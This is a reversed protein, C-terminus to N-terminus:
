DLMSMKFIFNRHMFNLSAVVNNSWLATVLHLIPFGHDPNQNQISAFHQIMLFNHMSVVSWDEMLLLSLTRTQLYWSASEPKPNEM